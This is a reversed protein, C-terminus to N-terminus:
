IATNFHVENIKITTYHPSVPGQQQLKIDVHFPM